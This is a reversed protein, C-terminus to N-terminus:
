FIIIINTKISYLYIFSGTKNAYFLFFLPLEWDFNSAEIMVYYYYIMGDWIAFLLFSSFSGAWHLGTTLMILSMKSSSPPLFNITILEFTIKGVALLVRLSICRDIYQNISELNLPLRWAKQHPQEALCCVKTVDHDDCYYDITNTDLRPHALVIFGCRTGSFRANIHLQRWCENM